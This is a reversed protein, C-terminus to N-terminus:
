CGVFAGLKNVQGQPYANDEENPLKHKSDEGRADRDKM